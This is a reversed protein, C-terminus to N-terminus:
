HQNLNDWLSACKRRAFGVRKKELDYVVEFGQQQYNGLLGAPGSEEEVGGNMLMVCGVKRKLKGDDGGDLFEYFYNRKPMVVSSNGGFHLLLQPM